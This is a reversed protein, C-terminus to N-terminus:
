EDASGAETENSKLLESLHLAKKRADELWPGLHGLYVKDDPDLPNLEQASNAIGRWFEEHWGLSRLLLEQARHSPVVSVRQIARSYQVRLAKTQSKAAEPHETNWKEKLKNWDPRAKIVNRGAVQLEASAPNLVIAFGKEQAQELLECSLSINIFSEAFTDNGMRALAEYRQQASPKKYPKRTRLRRKENGIIAGYAIYALATTCERKLAFEKFNVDEQLREWIDDPISFQDFIDYCKEEIANRLKREDDVADRLTM